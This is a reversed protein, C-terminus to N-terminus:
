TRYSSASFHVRVDEHGHAGLPFLVNGPGNNNGPGLWVESISVGDARALPIDLYAVVSSGSARFKPSQDTVGETEDLFKWSKQGIVVKLEHLARVEQEEVFSPHKYGHIISTFLAVETGMAEAFVGGRKKWNIYLAALYNAVEELQKSEEYEVELLMVPMKCIAKAKFGVAWGRADDAYGRWQSLVDPKRSFCAVLPHNHMQKPSLYADVLDFFSEDLGELALSGERSLLSNAAKEFLQYCYGWELPDNMMNIDSFRLADSELISLWASTSCYHYLVDEDTPQVVRDFSTRIHKEGENDM